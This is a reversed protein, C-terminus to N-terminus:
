REGEVYESLDCYVDWWFEFEAVTESQALWNRYRWGDEADLEEGDRRCGAYHSM